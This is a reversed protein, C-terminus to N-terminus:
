DGLMRLTTKALEAESVAGIKQFGRMAEVIAARMRAKARRAASKKTKRAMIVGILERRLARRPVGNPFLVLFSLTIHGGRRRFRILTLPQGPHTSGAPDLSRGAARDM